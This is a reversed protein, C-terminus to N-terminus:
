KYWWLIKVQFFYVTLIYFGFDFDFDYRPLIGGIDFTVLIDSDIIQVLHCTSSEDLRSMM